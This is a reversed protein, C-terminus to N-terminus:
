ALYLVTREKGVKMLTSYYRGMFEYKKGNVSYAIIPSLIIRGHYNNIHSAATEHFRVITGTCEEYNRLKKAGRVALIVTVVLLCLPILVYLKMVLEM